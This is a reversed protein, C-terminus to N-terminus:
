CFAQITEITIQVILTNLTIYTTESAIENHSHFSKQIAVNWQAMVNEDLRAREILHQSLVFGREFNQVLQYFSCILATCLSHSGLELYKFGNM